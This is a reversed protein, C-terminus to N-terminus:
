SVDEDDDDGDDPDAHRFYKGRPRTSAFNGNDFDSKLCKAINDLNGPTAEM